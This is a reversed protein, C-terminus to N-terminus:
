IQQFNQKIESMAKYVNVEIASQIKDTLYFLVM